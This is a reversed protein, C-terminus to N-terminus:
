SHPGKLHLFVSHTRPDSYRTIVLSPHNPVADALHFPKDFGVTCVFLPLAETLSIPNLPIELYHSIPLDLTFALISSSLIAARPRSGAARPVFMGRTEPPPAVPQSRSPGANEESFQLGNGSLMILETRLLLKGAEQLRSDEWSESSNTAQEPETMESTTMFTQAPEIITTTGIVNASDVEMPASISEVQLSLVDEPPESLDSSQPVPDGAGQHQLQHALYTFSATTDHTNSSTADMDAHFRTTKNPPRSQTTSESPELKRKLESIMITHPDKKAIMSLEKISACILSQVKIGRRLMPPPVTPAELQAEPASAGSFSPSPIGIEGPSMTLCMRSSAIITRQDHTDEEASQEQFDTGQSRRGYHEYHRMECDVCLGECDVGGGTNQHAQPPIHRSATAHAQPLTTTPTPPPSALHMNPTHTSSSHSSSPPTPAIPAIRSVLFSGNYDSSGSTTSTPPLSLFHSPAPNSRSNLNNTRSFGEEISTEPSPTPFSSSLDPGNIPVGTHFTTPATSRAVILPSLEHNLVGPSM